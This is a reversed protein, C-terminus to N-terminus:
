KACRGRTRAAKGGCITGQLDATSLRRVHRRRANGPEPVDSVASVNASISQWLPPMIHANPRGTCPANREPPQTLLRERSFNHLPTRHHFGLGISSQVDFDQSPHRRLLPKRFCELQGAHDPFERACTKFSSIGSEVSSFDIAERSVVDQLPM